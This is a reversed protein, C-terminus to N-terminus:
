THEAACRAKFAADRAVSKMETQREHYARLTIEYEHKTVLGNMFGDKVVDLSKNYGAKAAILFHKFARDHNGAKGELLGLNHRADVNGKMAALEWYHKAKKDDAEVGQGHYYSNGLNSYAVSCGLEGAKLYLENAKMWDQPVGRIGDAYCGALVYFAMANGNEMLKEVREIGEKDSDERPERCFPCMGLEEEKKGKRLEEMVMAHICGQCIRKGCCSNFISGVDLPLPLMCIPCDEAPPHDKFLEEDHLEAVRRDCKKKHKSKHKKKCALNCYKVMKCKNCINLDSGEKGCNACKDVEDTCTIHMNNLEDTCTIHQKEEDASSM